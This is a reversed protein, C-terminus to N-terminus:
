KKKLILQSNNTTTIHTWTDRLDQYFEPPYLTENIRILQSFVIHDGLVQSDFSYEINKNQFEINRSKPKEQISFNDPLTLSVSIIGTYPYPFEVPLKRSQAKFMNEKYPPLILADLYIMDHDTLIDVSEFSIIELSGRTSYEKDEINTIILNYKNELEQIREEKTEAKDKQVLHEVHSIGRRAKQIKGALKGEETFHAIISTRTYNESLKSLNIWRGKKDIIARAEEVLCEPHILNPAGYKYSADLFIPKENAYVGVIFYNISELSPHFSLVRGRTKLSMVVPFAKFGAQKLLCILLANMEASSGRGEKLAKKLPGPYLYNKGDWQIQSKVLDYIANVQDIANSNQEMIMKVEKNLLDSHNLRLGFNKSLMLEEDIVEWSTYLYKNINRKKLEIVARTLYQKHDWIFNDAKLVPLKTGEITVQTFQSYYGGDSITEKSTKLQEYGFTWHSFDLQTPIKIQFRIKRVPISKQFFFEEPYIQFPTIKRYKVEIVSGVIVNPFSIKVQKVNETIDENFINEKSLKTRSIKGDIINHTFGQIKSITEESGAYKYLYTQIDGYSLGAPKLVKVRSIHNTIVILSGDSFTYEAEDNSYLIVAIASTDEPYIQMALDEKAVLGFKIEENPSAASSNFFAFHILLLLYPISRKM